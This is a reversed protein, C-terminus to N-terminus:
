TRRRQVSPQVRSTPTRKRRQPVSLQANHKATEDATRPAAEKHALACVCRCRDASSGGCRGAAGGARSAIGRSQM